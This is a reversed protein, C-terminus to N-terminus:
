NITLIGYMGAVFHGPYTCIYTYTGAAPATFELIESTGPGLLASGAIINAKDAPIYGTAEGAESAAEDVMAAVDDGGKVLVFNHSLATTNNQFILSIKEGAKATLSTPYLALNEGDSSVTLGTGVVNKAMEDMDRNLNCSQRGSMLSGYYDEYQICDLIWKGETTAFAIAKGNSASRWKHFDCTYECPANLVTFMIEVKSEGAEVVGIVEGMLRGKDYELFDGDTWTFGLLSKYARDTTMENSGIGGPGLTLVLMISILLQKM